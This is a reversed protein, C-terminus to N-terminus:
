NINIYINIHTHLLDFPVFPLSPLAHFTFDTFRVCISFTIFSHCSSTFFFCHTFTYVQGRIQVHRSNIYLNSLAQLGQADVIPKCFDPMETLKTLVWAVEVKLNDINDESRGLLSVLVPIANLENIRKLQAAEINSNAAAAKLVKLSDFSILKDLM